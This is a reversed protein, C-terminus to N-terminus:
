KSVASSPAASVCRLRHEASELMKSASDDDDEVDHEAAVAVPQAQFNQRGDQAACGRKGTKM